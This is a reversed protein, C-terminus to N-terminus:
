QMAASGVISMNEKPISPTLAPNRQEQFNPLLCFTKLYFISFKFYNRYESISVNGIHQRLITKFTSM